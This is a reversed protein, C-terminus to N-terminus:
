VVSKRDKLIRPLKQSPVGPWLRLREIRELEGSKSVLGFAFQIHDEEMGGSKTRVMQEDDVDVMLYVNKDDYNCYVKM